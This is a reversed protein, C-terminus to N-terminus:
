LIAIAIWVVDIATEYWRQITRETRGYKAALKVWSVDFAKAMVLKRERESLLTLWPLTEDMRDIADPSPVPRSVKTDEYASKGNAVRDLAVAMVDIAERLTEPWSTLQGYVWKREKDPLAALTLIAERLRMEVQRKTFRPTPAMIPRVNDFTLSGFDRADSPQKM